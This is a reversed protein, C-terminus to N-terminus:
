GRRRRRARQLAEATREVMAELGFEREVRRRLERGLRERGEPGMGALRRWVAALAEPDRPPATLEPRGLVWASDGVRSAACPRGCAMAEGLANPFGEGYASALSMVDLANHAAAADALEGAWVVRGELGLRAALAALSEAREPPGGGVCVFRAEPTELRAAARLFTEHDKMPDLRGVLGIALHGEALGWVARLRRGAEPDPRFAATDIGNPVVVTRAPPYGRALHYDRGSRSNAIILEPLRSLLRNARFNARPLWGYRSLDMNSARVGWVLAAGGWLTRLAAAALNPADLFSYVVEPRARRVLAVLRAAFGGMDWRGAKAPSQVRVGAATLEQELPGGPYFTAVEVPAGRRALGRALAVAQREAGGRELSRLLLLTKDPRDM